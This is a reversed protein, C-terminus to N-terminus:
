WECRMQEVAPAMMRRSVWSTSAGVPVEGVLCSSIWLSEVGAIFRGWEDIVEVQPTPM